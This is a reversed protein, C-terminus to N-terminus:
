KWIFRRSTAIKCTNLEFAQSFQEVIARERLALGNILFQIRVKITDSVNERGFLALCWFVCVVFFDVLLDNVSALIDLKYSKWLHHWKKNLLFMEFINWVWKRQYILKCPMWKAHGFRIIQRGINANMTYVLDNEIMWVRFRTCVSDFSIRFERDRESERHAFTDVTIACYFESRHIKM